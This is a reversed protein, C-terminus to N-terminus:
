RTEITPERSFSLQSNFTRPGFPISVDYVNAPFAPSCWGKTIPFAEGAFVRAHQFNTDHNTDYGGGGQTHTSDSPDLHPCRLPPPVAHVNGRM